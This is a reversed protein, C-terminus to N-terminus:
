AEAGRVQESSLLELALSGRLLRARSAQVLNEPEQEALWVADVLLSLYRRLVRARADETAQADGLDLTEYADDWYRGDFFLEPHREFFGLLAERPAYELFRGEAIIRGAGGGAIDHMRGLVTAKEAMSLEQYLSEADSPQINQSVARALTRLAAAADASLIVPDLKTITAYRDRLSALVSGFTADTHQGRLFDMAAWALEALLGDLPTMTASSFIPHDINVLFEYMGAPSRILRWPVGDRGLLPDNPRVSFAAINWRQETADDRYEGTLSALSVRPPPAPVPAPAIGIGPEDIPPAGPLGPADGGGREQLLLQRDAEEVLEWWKTDTLYTGEGAYFRDAMERARGNDPVLLLNAYCGAYKPKPSNRRFAQFLRFLPSDNQAYGLQAAEQPRLPGEGRVIRIMEEWAPDNRDFQDKTYHVRCHDIHIEGVIRGRHRPDDIPYERERVGENNDWYFLDSGGIEIKRGHRVLDLGYDNEDYYRQLGLWGRVRRERVLVNESSECSSCADEEARLWQWCRTCFKRNPLAVNVTQYASIEGFRAHNVSRDPNGPGGWVCHQRGKLASGNVSLRITLPTGETRLMAAYVRELQDKLKSRNAAGGFWQAQDPKLREISVETGHVRSNPKARTLVPTKFHRQRLLSDFDIELGYWVPDGERTSWVRTVTGLRATAINFGMGFMGLYNVPDNGTWGARVANELTEPNMGPGNDLVTIHSDRAARTPLTVHVEPDPVPHRERQAAIFGDVSNDVLEGICQWQKLNIEGLMPLIRPHPQLNFERPAVQQQDAM